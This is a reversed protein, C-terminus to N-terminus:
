SAGSGLPTQALVLLALVLRFTRAVCARSADSSDRSFGCKRRLASFVMARWITASGGRALLQQLLQRIASSRVVRQVTGGRSSILIIHSTRSIARALQPIPQAPM